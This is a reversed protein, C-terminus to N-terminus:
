QLLFVITDAILLPLVMFYFFLTGIGRWFGDHVPIGSSASKGRISSSSVKVSASPREILPQGIFSDPFHLDDRNM